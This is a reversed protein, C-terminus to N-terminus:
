QFKQNFTLVPINAHNAVEEAISGFLLHAVGTRGHTTMAIINAGIAEAFTRIGEEETYHNHCNATFNDFGHERAFSNILDITDQTTEFTNPTVVKVFHVTADCFVKQFTKISDVVKTPVNLFSSAFVINRFNTDTLEGKVTLVPAKAMRIVREANSGVTLEELGSAGKSGMVILDTEDKIVFSALSKAMDDFVVHETINVNGYQEKAAALKDRAVEMLRHMFVQELNPDDSTTSSLNIGDNGEFPSVHPVDIVHLLSVSAGAADAITTAAKLAINAEESFDTPVLIKKIEM